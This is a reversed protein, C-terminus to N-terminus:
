KTKIRKRASLCPNSGQTGKQPVCAKWAHVKSRETVEGIEVEGILFPRLAKVQAETLPEGNIMHKRDLMKRADERTASLPASFVYSDEGYCSLCYGVHM